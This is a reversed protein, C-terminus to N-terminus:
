KIKNKELSSKVFYVKSKKEEDLIGINNSPEKGIFKIHHLYM